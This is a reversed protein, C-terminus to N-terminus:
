VKRAPPVRHNFVRSWAQHDSQSDRLDADHAPRTGSDSPSKLSLWLSWWAHFRTNFWRTGGARLTQYAVGMLRRRAESPISGTEIVMLRDPPYTELLRYLLASGHYSSEVPVDGLYLLRPLRAEVM